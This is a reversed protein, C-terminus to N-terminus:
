KNIQITKRTEISSKENSRASTPKVKTRKGSTRSSEEVNSKHKSINM